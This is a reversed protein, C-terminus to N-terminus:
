PKSKFDWLLSHFQANNICTNAIERDEKSFQISPEEAQLQKIKKARKKM